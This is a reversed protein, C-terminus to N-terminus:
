DEQDLPQFLLSKTYQDSPRRWKSQGLKMKHHGLKPEAKYTGFILDWLSICFGFNRNSEKQEVSHHIRHMDPTVILKRVFKDLTKPIRINSHNFQASANLLIEFWLVALASFGFCLVIASKWLISILIELPHFRLATTVDVHIDSHHVRHLRWIFPIKHSYYHQVWVAFDLVLIAFIFEAITNIKVFHLIGIQNLEAWVALATLGGPVILRTVLTGILFITWSGVWRHKRAERMDRKPLILELCALVVFATSFTVIRLHLDSM